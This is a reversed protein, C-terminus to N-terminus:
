NLFQTTDHTCGDMYGRVSKLFLNMDGAKRIFGKAKSPVLLSEASYFVVSVQNFVDPNEIEFRKLFQYGDMDAMHVDLLVLQPTKIQSLIELARLGNSATFVEFGEQELILRGLYLMDESDDIVLISRQLLDPFLQQHM